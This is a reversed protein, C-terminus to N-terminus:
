ARYTPCEEETAPGEACIEWHRGCPCHTEPDVPVILDSRMGSAAWAADHEALLEDDAPMGACETDGYWVDPSVHERLWLIIAKFAPWDGRHYGRGFYRVGSEVTVAQVHPAPGDGGLVQYKDPWAWWNDDLALGTCFSRAPTADLRRKLNALDIATLEPLHRRYAVIRVDMGM